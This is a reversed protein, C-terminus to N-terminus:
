TDRSFSLAYDVDRQNGVVSPDKRHQRSKPRRERELLKFTYAQDRISTYPIQDVAGRGSGWRVGM